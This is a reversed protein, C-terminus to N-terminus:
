FYFCVPNLSATNTFRTDNKIFIMLFANTQQLITPARKAAQKIFYFGMHKISHGLALVEDSINIKELM